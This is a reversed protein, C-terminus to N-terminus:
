ARFGYQAVYGAYMGSTVDTIPRGTAAEWRRLATELRPANRAALEHNPRSAGTVPDRAEPLWPDIAVCFRVSADEVRAGEEPPALVAAFRWEAAHPVRLLGTCTDVNASCSMALGTVLDASQPLHVTGDLQVEVPETEVVSRDMALWDAWAEDVVCLSDFATVFARAASLALATIAAPSSDQPVGIDIGWCGAHGIRKISM